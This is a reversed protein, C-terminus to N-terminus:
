GKATSQNKEGQTKLYPAPDIKNARAIEQHTKDLVHPARRQIYRVGKVANTEKKARGFGWM